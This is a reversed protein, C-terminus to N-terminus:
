VWDWVSVMPTNYNGNLGWTMVREDMDVACCVVDGAAWAKGYGSDFGHWKRRLSVFFCRHRPHSPSLTILTPTTISTPLHTLM